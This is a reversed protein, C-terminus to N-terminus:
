RPKIKKGVKSSSSRALENTVDQPPISNANRRAEAIATVETIAPKLSMCQKLSIDPDLGLNELKLELSAVRRELQQIKEESEIQQTKITKYKTALKAFNARLGKVFKMLNQFTPTLDSVVKKTKSFLEFEPLEELQKFELDIKKELKEFENIEAYYQAIKKAKAKKEPQDKKFGYKKNIEFVEKRFAAIKAPGDFYINSRLKQDVIPVFSIHLHPTLEDRHLVSYVINEKGFKKECFQSIEKAWKESDIKKMEEHSASFVLNCIKNADKRYKIGELKLKVEELVDQDASGILYLNQKSKEPDVNESFQQRLNHDGVKKIATSNKLKMINIVQGM